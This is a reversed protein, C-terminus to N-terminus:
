SGEQELGQPGESECFRIAHMYSQTQDTSSSLKRGEVQNRKSVRTANTLYGVAENTTGRYTLFGVGSITRAPSPVYMHVCEANTM